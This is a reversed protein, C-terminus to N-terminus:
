EIEQGHGAVEESKMQVSSGRGVILFAKLGRNAPRLSKQRRKFRGQSEGGGIRQWELAGQGVTVQNRGSQSIVKEM